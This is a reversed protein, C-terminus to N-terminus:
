SNDVPPGIFLKLVARWPLSASCFDLISFIIMFYVAREIAESTVAEIATPQALLCAGRVLAGILLPTVSTRGIAGAGAGTM